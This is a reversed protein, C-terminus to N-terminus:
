RTKGRKAPKPKGPKRRPPKPPDEEAKDSPPQKGTDVAIPPNRMSHIPNIMQSKDPGMKDPGMRVEDINEFWRSNDRPPRRSARVYKELFNVWGSHKPFAIADAYYPLVHDWPFYVSLGYTWQFKRGSYCSAIVFLKEIFKALEDCQRALELIDPEPNAILRLRDALVKLFDALDVYLEGNYSQAQWHALVMATTFSDYYPPPDNDKSPLIEDLKKTFTDAIKKLGVLEANGGMRPKGDILQNVLRIDLASQTVSLGGFSYDAYFDVYTNVIEKALRRFCDRSLDEEGTEVCAAKCSDKIVELVEKYPWGSAPAYSPCSIAVKVHGRLEYAIETMSMLCTDMGFLDLVFPRGNEHTFDRNLEYLVQGLEKLTLYGQPSDDRLLYDREAGGGHGCIIFLYHDSRLVPASSPPDLCYAIFNYLAAPDGSFGEGPREKQDGTFRRYPKMHPSEFKFEGNLQVEDFKDDEIQNPKANKKDDQVSDEPPRNIRYRKVPLFDDKPDYQVFVQVDEGLDVKKMETLSYICEETLNNDGAMYIMVTWKPRRSTDAANPQENSM